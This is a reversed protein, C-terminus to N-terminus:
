LCLPSYFQSSLSTKKILLGKNKDVAGARGGFCTSSSLMGVERLRGAMGSGAGAGAAAGAGAETLVKGLFGQLIKCSTFSEVYQRQYGNNSAMAFVLTIHLLRWFM